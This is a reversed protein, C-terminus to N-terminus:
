RPDSTSLGAHTQLWRRSDSQSAPVRGTTAAGPAPPISGPPHTAADDRFQTDTLTTRPCVKLQVQQHIHHSLQSTPLPGPLNLCRTGSPSWCGPLLMKPQLLQLLCCSRVDKLGLALQKGERGTNAELDM